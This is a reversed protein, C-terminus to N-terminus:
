RLEKGTLWHLPNRRTLRDWLEDDVGHDAASARFSTLLHGYGWGGHARLYAHRSIDNSLLIQDEFGADLLGLLLNLRESDPQYSAKGATDLAVYVGRRASVAISEIDPVLDQHGISIRGPELGTSLLVDLQARAGRGLHAHTSVPAGTRMSAKAAAQFAVRETPSLEEAHSGVEGIVAPTVGGVGDTLETVLLEEARDPDGPEGVPHFKEYYWGTSAVVHVSSRRAIEVLANLDRGMGRCTQDIVVSLGDSERLSALEEIVLRYERLFGDPDATTTLDLALHEHPLVPGRILEASVRGLVTTFETM